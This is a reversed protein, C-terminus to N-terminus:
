AWGTPLSSAAPTGFPMRCTSLLIQTHHGHKGCFNNIIKLKLFNSWMKLETHLTWLIFCQVLQVGLAECLTLPDTRSVRACNYNGMLSILRPSHNNIMIRMKRQHELSPVKHEKYVIKVKHEENETSCVANAPQKFALIVRWLFVSGYGM